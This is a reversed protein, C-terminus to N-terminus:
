KKIPGPARDPVPPKKKAEEIEKLRKQAKSAYKGNPYDTVVKIFYPGADDFKGAQFHSDALTFYVKDMEPFLPYNVLIENLRSVAPNFAKTKYYHEGIMFLQEALRNECDRIKERAMKAEETLPFMSITKKFEALAETTKTQDRGPKLMKNYSCLGIRYQALPASPSTPYLGLFSRYQAAALILSGEDKQQFYTEAIALMARQAFFSKPFSEMVQRFLVLAKESDKKILREGEKYLAEDSGAIAPSIVAQKKSCGASVAIMSAAVVAIFKFKNM